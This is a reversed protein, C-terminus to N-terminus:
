LSSSTKPKRLLLTAVWVFLVTGGTVVVLIIIRGFLLDKDDNLNERVIDFMANFVSLCVVALGLCLM